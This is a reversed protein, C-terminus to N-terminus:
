DGTMSGATENPLNLYTKFLSLTAKFNFVAISFSFNIPKFHKKFFKLSSQIISSKITVPFHM